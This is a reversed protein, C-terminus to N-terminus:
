PVVPLFTILAHHQPLKQFCTFIYVIHRSHLTPPELPLSYVRWRRQQM